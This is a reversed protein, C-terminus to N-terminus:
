SSSPWPTGPSNEVHGRIERLSDGGFKELWPNMLALMTVAEGVVAAAPVACVDSRERLAQAPRGTALDVTMLPAALTALPKMAARLVVPMGNSIGGEVGGARNTQRTAFGSAAPFLEDHTESGFQAASADGAGVGVAKVAPVSLLAAALLADLRRDAHVYSGLGAPLGTVIVEFVGGVTDGRRQADDIVDQMQKARKADLCRVPNADARRSLDAAEGLEMDYSCRATGIAIVHSAIEIGFERFFKRCIAGLAVRMATERASSREIVNRIDAHLYKLSGAYDAHGPRPATLPTTRADPEPADVRMKDQWNVWDNNEILLAIPSGLTEGYRVGTLIRATDREIQMRAGRGYGLQRRQLDVAIEPESIALGAPLGELIGVLARGHSEGATLYRIM